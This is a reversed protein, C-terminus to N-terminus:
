SRMIKRSFKKSSNRRRTGNLWFYVQQRGDRISSHFKCKWWTETRSIISTLFLRVDM